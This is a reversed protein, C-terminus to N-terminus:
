GSFETKTSIMHDKTKVEVQWFSKFLRHVSFASRQVTIPSRHVTPPSISKSIQMSAIQGTVPMIFPFAYSTALTTLALGIQVRAGNLVQGHVDYIKKIQYISSLGVHEVEYVEHPTIVSKLQKEHELKSDLKTLYRPCKVGLCLGGDNKEKTLEVIQSILSEINGMYVQLCTFRSILHFKLLNRSENQSENSLYPAMSDKELINKLYDIEIQLASKAKLLQDHAKQKYNESNLGFDFPCFIIDKLAKYYRKLVQHGGELEIEFLKVHAAYLIDKNQTIDFANKVHLRAKDLENIRIYCESLCISHFPNFKVKTLDVLSEFEKFGKMVRSGITMASSIQNIKQSTYAKKELWFAWMEQVDKLIYRAHLQFKNEERFKLVISECFCEFLRDMFELEILKNEKVNKLRM